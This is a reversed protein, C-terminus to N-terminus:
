TKAFVRLNPEPSCLFRLSGYQYTQAALVPACSPPLSVGLIMKLM